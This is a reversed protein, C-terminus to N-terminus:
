LVRTPIPPCIRKVGEQFVTDAWGKPTYGYVSHGDEDTDTGDVPKYGPVPGNGWYQLLWACQSAVVWIDEISPGHAGINKRYSEERAMCLRDHTKNDPKIAAIAKERYVAHILDTLVEVNVTYHFIPSGDLEAYHYVKVLRRFAYICQEFVNWVFHSGVNRSIRKTQIYDHMDSALIFGLVYIEVLNPCKNEASIHAKADEIVDRYVDVIDIYFRVMNPRRVERPASSSSSAAFSAGALVYARTKDNTRDVVDKYLEERLCRRKALNTKYTESVEETDVSRRTVVWGRRNPCLELLRRMQLLGILVVDADHSYVHFDMKPFRYVWNWVDIDGEGIHPSAWDERVEFGARTIELPAMNRFGDDYDLAGGSLILTKGPPIRSRTEDAIFYLTIYVYFERKAAPTDFILDLAGPMPQGDLFYYSQGPPLPLQEPAEEPRARKSRMVTTATKERPRRGYADLCVVYIEVDTTILTEFAEEFVKRVFQDCTTSHVFGESDKYYSISTSRLQALIDNVCLRVGRKKEVADSVEGQASPQISRGYKALFSLWATKSITM